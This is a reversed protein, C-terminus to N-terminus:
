PFLSAAAIAAKRTPALGAAIDSQTLTFDGVYRRNERKGPLSGIWEGAWNAARKKEPAYNKIYDVVGYAIRTLENRITEAEGITDSLGGVEIWWFNHGDVGNLRNPLDDPCTFKYAWAPAVFLKPSETRRFQILLSNGMTKSDAAEHVIDEDFEGSAERGARYNAPTLAALISDGSCDVFITSKTMHLTQTTLQWATVEANRDGEMRADFVSGNLITTLGPQFQAAGFLVGDWISYNLSPNLYQNALQIEELIGAEKNFKGHAGCIWMRDESSANGGLVPRDHILVTRAGNRASAIAACLGAMGGGVICVDFDREITKGSKIM